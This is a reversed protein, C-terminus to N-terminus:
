QEINLKALRKELQNGFNEKQYQEYIPEINQCIYKIYPKYFRGYVLFLAPWRKM